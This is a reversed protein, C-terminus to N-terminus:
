PAQLFALVWTQLLIVRWCIYWCWVYWIQEDGLSHLWLHTMTGQGFQLLPWYADSCPQSHYLLLFSGSISTFICSIIQASLTIFGYFFAGRLWHFCSCILFLSVLISISFGQSISYSWFHCFWVFLHGVWRGGSSLYLNPM